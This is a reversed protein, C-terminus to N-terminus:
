QIPKVTYGKKRLLSIVGNDGGLHGAGFAFFTSQDRAAKEIIPIWNRNRNDLLEEEFGDPDGDFKSESILKMLQGIDQTKYAAILDTIEKQAENPKRAMDVLGKLQKDIPVKDLVAMQQELTELGLIEKGDKGALQAFTMDYSAPDCKMLRVFLLSSLAVPKLTGMQALGAGLNGLMYGDLTTYDEPSLFDKLNKGDALMMAKMMSAQLTPDDMDMELYLKKSSSFAKKIADSINLDAPCILHFTGYIFSPQPLDKGSVEYLLSNDQGYAACSLFGGLVLSLLSKM